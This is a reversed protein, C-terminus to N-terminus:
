QLLALVSQQQQNAQALMATAAQQVIQAKALATTETAYDTDLIRSRSANLNESSEALVSVIADLRNQFAGSKAQAAAVDAIAADIATIAQSAGSQTSINIDAIKTGTDTGGFTGARFGFDEFNTGGENGREVVFATSSSLVVSAFHTSAAASDASTGITVGSLGLSRASVTSGISINRGDAARLEIGDGFATAVVGTQGQKENIADIVANRTGAAITINIGNLFLAGGGAASFNGSTGRLVTADAQATVGHEDTKKNIAVAIAIASAAKMNSATAHTLGAVGDPIWSAVDDTANSKGIAIGNIVLTDGAFVPAAGAASM